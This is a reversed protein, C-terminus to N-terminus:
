KALHQDHARHSHDAISPVAGGAVEPEGFKQRALWCLKCRNSQRVLIRTCDPCHHCAAFRVPLCTGCLICARWGAHLSSPLPCFLFQHLLGTSVAPLSFGSVVRCKLTRAISLSRKRASPMMALPVYLRRVFLGSV